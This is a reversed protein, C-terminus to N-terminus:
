KRDLLWAAIRCAGYIAAGAIFLLPTRRTDNGLQCSAIGAALLAAGLLQGLKLLM